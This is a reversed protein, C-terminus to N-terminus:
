EIVVGSRLLLEYMDRVSMRTFKGLNLNMNAGFEGSAEASFMWGLITAVHSGSREEYFEDLVDGSEEHVTEDYNPTPFPSESILVFVYVDSGDNVDVRPYGSSAPHHEPFDLMHTPDFKRVDTTSKIDIRNGGIRFDSEGYEPEASDMADAHLYEWHRENVFERFFERVAIEGLNGVFKRLDDTDRGEAEAQAEAQAVAKEEEIESFPYWYM